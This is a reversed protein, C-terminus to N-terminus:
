RLILYNNKKLRWGRRSKNNSSAGRHLQVTRAEIV